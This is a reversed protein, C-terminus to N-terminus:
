LSTLLKSFVKYFRPLIVDGLIASMSQAFGTFRQKHKIKSDRALLCDFLLVNGAFALQTKWSQSVDFNNIEPM